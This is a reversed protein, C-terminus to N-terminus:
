EENNSNQNFSMNSNLINLAAIVAFQKILLFNSENLKELIENSITMGFRFQLRTISETLQTLTRAKRLDIIYKRGQKINTKKDAGEYQLISMGISKGLKIAREQLSSDMNKNLILPEYLTIFNLLQKYNKYGVSENAVLAKYCNFFLLEMESLISKGEIILGLIKERSIRELAFKNQNSKLSPNLFKLSKLFVDMQIKTDDAQHITIYHFFRILFRLKTIYQFASPRKTNGYPDARIAVLIPQVESISKDLLEEDILDDMNASDSEMVHISEMIKKYFSFILMFAYENKGIFVEGKDKNFNYLKLNSVYNESVWELSNMRLKGTEVYKDYLANLNTLSNSEFLYVNISEYVKNTYTYLAQAAAFRSLYMAQWSIKKDEKLLSNFNTIGSIFPSTSTNAVLKKFSKGTLYCTHKGETFYDWHFTDLRTIKSYPENFYVKSLLKLKKDEFTKRIFTALDPDTKAIDEIKRSDTERRMTGQANNTLLETLGYTKMKPFPQVTYTGNEKKTFYLNGPDQKQKETVTDYVEKGMLYYVEELLVPINDSTIILQTDTLSVEYELAFDKMLAEKKLEDTLYRYLAIIGNDLLVHQTQEFIVTNM